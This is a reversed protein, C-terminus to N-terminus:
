HSFSKKIEELLTGQLNKGWKNINTLAKHKSYGIGWLRDFPSAEILKKNKTGLLIKKLDDNQTFKAENHSKMINYSVKNWVDDNFNRVKRGLKKAKRPDKEQLIKEAYESDSFTVAKSWMFGHETSPFEVGYLVYKAPFFNSFVSSGGFFFEYEM